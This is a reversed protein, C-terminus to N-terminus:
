DLQDSWRTFDTWIWAISELFLLVALLPELGTM